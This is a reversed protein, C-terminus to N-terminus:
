ACEGRYSIIVAGRESALLELAKRTLALSRKGVPPQIIEVAEVVVVPPAAPTPTALLDGAVCELSDFCNLADIVDAKQAEIWLITDAYVRHHASGVAVYCGPTVAMEILLMFQKFVGDKLVYVRPKDHGGGGEHDNRWDALHATLVAPTIAVVQTGDDLIRVDSM